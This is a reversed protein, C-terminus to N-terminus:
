NKRIEDPHRVTLGLFGVIAMIGCNNNKSKPSIITMYDGFDIAFRKVIKEKQKFVDTDLIKKITNNISRKNIVKEKLAIAGVNKVINTFTENYINDLMSQIM